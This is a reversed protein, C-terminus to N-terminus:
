AVPAPGITIKSAKKGKIKKQTDLFSQGQALIQQWNEEKQKLFVTGSSVNTDTEEIKYTPHRWLMAQHPTHLDAGPIQVWLGWAVSTSHTFKVM